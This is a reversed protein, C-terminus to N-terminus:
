KFDKLHQRVYLGRLGTLADAHVECMNDRRAGREKIQKWGIGNPNYFRSLYKDEDKITEIKLKEYSKGEIVVGNPFELITELKDDSWSINQQKVKNWVLLSYNIM